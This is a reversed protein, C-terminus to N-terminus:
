IISDAVVYTLNSKLPHHYIFSPKEILKGGIKLIARQSRINAKDAYLIVRGSKELIYNVMLKKVARNYKGGWYAKALFTWGIEVIKGKKDIIKFRSSGIINGSARNRIVVAGLSYVSEEFFRQFGSKTHREKCPHQEWIEKASAVKFLTDFHDPQLPELTVLDNELYPQLTFM